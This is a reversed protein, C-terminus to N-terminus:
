EPTLVIVKKSSNKWEPHNNDVRLELTLGTQFVVRELEDIHGPATLREILFPVTEIIVKGPTEIIKLVPNTLMNILNTIRIAAKFDLWSAKKNKSIPYIPAKVKENSPHEQEKDKSFKIGIIKVNQGYVSKIAEPVKEKEMDSFRISGMYIGVKDPELEQFIWSDQVEGSRQTGLAKWLAQSLLMRRTQEDTAQTIDDQNMEPNEKSPQLQDCITVSENPKNQQEAISAVQELQTLLCPAFTAHQDQQNQQIPDRAPTNTETEIISSVSIVGKAYSPTIEKLVPRLIKTDDESHIGICVDTGYTDVNQPYGRDENKHTHSTNYKSSIYKHNTSPKLEAVKARDIGIPNYFHDTQQWIHIVMQNFLVKGYNINQEFDRGLLGLKELKVIKRRITEEVVGYRSALFKYCVHIGKSHLKPFSVVKGGKYQKKDNYWSRFEDFYLNIALVDPRGRSDVILEYLQHKRSLTPLTNKNPTNTILQKVEKNKAKKSSDQSSLSAPANQIKINNQVSNGKLSLDISQKTM